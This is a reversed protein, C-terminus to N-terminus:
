LFKGFAETNLANFLDSLTVTLIAGASGADVVSQIIAQNVRLYSQQSVSFVSSIDVLSECCSRFGMPHDRFIDLEEIYADTFLHSQSDRWAVARCFASPGGLGGFEM